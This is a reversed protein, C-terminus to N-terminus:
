KKDQPAGFEIYRLSRKECTYAGDDTSITIKPSILYGKLIQGDQLEAIDLNGFQGRELRRLEGPQFHHSGTGSEFEIVMDVRGCKAQGEGAVFMRDQTPLQVAGEAITEKSSAALEEPMKGETVESPTAKEGAAQEEGMSSVAKSVDKGEETVEAKTAVEASTAQTEAATGATSGVATGTVFNAKDSLLEGVRGEGGMGPVGYGACFDILNRQFREGSLSKEWLLTKYVVTGFGERRLAVIAPSDAAFQLLNETGEHPMITGYVKRETEFQPLFVTVSAVGTSVAHSKIPMVTVAVGPVSHEGIEGSEPQGKFQDARLEYMEMGFKDALRADYFWLSGGQRVWEMIIPTYEDKYNEAGVQFCVVNVKPDAVIQKFNDVNGETVTYTNANSATYERELSQQLDAHAPMAGAALCLALSMGCLFSKM